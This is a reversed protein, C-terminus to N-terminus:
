EAVARSRLNRPVMAMLDPRDSALPDDDYEDPDDSGPDLIHRM